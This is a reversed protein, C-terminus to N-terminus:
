TWHLTSVLGKIYRGDSRHHEFYYYLQLYLVGFLSLGFAVGIQLAGLYEDYSMGAKLFQAITTINTGAASTSTSM